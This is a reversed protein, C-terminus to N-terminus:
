TVLMHGDYRLFYAHPISLVDGVQGTGLEISKAEGRELDPTADRRKTCDIWGIRGANM